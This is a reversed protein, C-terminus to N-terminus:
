ATSRGAARIRYFLRLYQGSQFVRPASLTATAWLVGGVGNLTSDSVVFAGKVTCSETFIFETADSSFAVATGVAVQWAKRTGGSYGTLERWGSHSAMTDSSALQQFNLQDILGIYWIPRQTGDDFAASLVDTLGVTVPANEMRDYWLLSGESDRAVLYMQGTFHLM